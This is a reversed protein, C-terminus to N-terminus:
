CGISGLRFGEHDEVYWRGDDPFDGVVIELVLDRSGERAMRFGEVVPSYFTDEEVVPKGGYWNNIDARTTKGVVLRCLTKGQRSAEAMAYCLTARNFQVAVTFRWDLDRWEANM